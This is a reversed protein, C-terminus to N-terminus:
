IPTEIDLLKEGQFVCFRSCPRNVRTTKMRVLVGRVGDLAAHRVSLLQVVSSFPFGLMRLQLARSGEADLAVCERISVGLQLGAMLHSEDLM